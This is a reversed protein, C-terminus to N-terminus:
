AGSQVQSGQSDLVVQAVGASCTQEEEAVEKGDNRDTEAKQEVQDSGHQVYQKTASLAIAEARKWRIDVQRAPRQISLM